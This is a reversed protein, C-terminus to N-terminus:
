EYVGLRSRVRSAAEDIRASLERLRTDLVDREVRGEATVAEVRERLMTEADSLRRELAEVFEDRQRELGAAIQRLRKELHQVGADAVQSLREGLVSDAERSFVAVARDLERGLRRAADERATKIAVDFRESAAEAFREAERDVSRKLQEVQRREVDELTSQIRRVAETQERDILENLERERRRLRDGVEHLARRREAAHSELEASTGAVADKTARELESRLRDLTAHYEESATKLREADAEIRAEAETFLQRQRHELANLQDAFGQQVRELDDAWGGLRQEVRQQVEAVKQGLEAAARDEREAVERRREEAIRREEAQLLAMSDARALTLSRELEAARESAERELMEEIRAKARAYAEDLVGQEDKSKRGLAM